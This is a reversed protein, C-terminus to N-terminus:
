GCTETAKAATTSRASAAGTRSRRRGQRPTANLYGEIRGHRLLAVSATGPDTRIPRWGPPFPLTAGDAIRAVHWGAPPAAPHLWAFPDAAPRHSSGGGGALALVLVVAALASVLLGATTRTRRRM